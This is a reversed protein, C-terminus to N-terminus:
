EKIHDKLEHKLAYYAKLKSELLLEESDISIVENPPDFSDAIVEISVKDGINLNKKIWRVSENNESNSGSIVLDLLNRPNIKRIGAALYMIHLNSNIGARIPKEDNISIQFGKNSM